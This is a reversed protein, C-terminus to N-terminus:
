KNSERVDVPLKFKFKGTLVCKCLNKAHLRLRSFPINATRTTKNQKWTVVVAIDEDKFTLTFSYICHLSRATSLCHSCHSKFITKVTSFETFYSLIRRVTRKAWTASHETAQNQQCRNESQLPLHGTISTCWCVTSPVTKFELSLCASPNRSVRPLDRTNKTRFSQTIQRIRRWYYCCKRTHCWDKTMLSEITFKEYGKFVAQMNCILPVNRKYVIVSFKTRSLAPTWSLDANQTRLKLFTRHNLERNHWNSRKLWGVECYCYQGVLAYLTRVNFCLPKM